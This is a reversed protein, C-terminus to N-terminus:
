RNYLTKAKDVNESKLSTKFASIAEDYKKNKYMANGLNYHTKGEDPYEISNQKFLEEAKSYDEKNYAKKADSNKLVKQYNLAFCEHASIIIFLITFISIKKM